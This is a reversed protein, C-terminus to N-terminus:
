LQSAGDQLPDVNINKKLDNENTFIRRQCNRLHIRISFINRAESLEEEKIDYDNDYDKVVRALALVDSNM